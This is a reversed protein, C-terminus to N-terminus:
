IRELDEENKNTLSSHWVNSSQELISRVYSIYIQKMDEISPKFASIKHLIQMRPNAKKVIEETNRDWKLDNTITTGLIKIENVNELLTNNLKLNTVFQLNRSPNIIMYKTKTENIVM